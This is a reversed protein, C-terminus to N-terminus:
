RGSRRCSRHPSQWASGYERLTRRGRTTLLLGFIREILPGERVSVVKTAVALFEGGLVGLSGLGKGFVVRGVRKGLNVSSLLLLNCLSESDLTEGGQLEELLYYVIIFCNFV